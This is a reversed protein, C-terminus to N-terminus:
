VRELERQPEVRTAGKALRSPWWVRDGILHVAAPVVLTRVVFTDLLVGFGVLFGLQILIVLPLVTLAGFTAALVLGASTIVGGTVALARLVGSKTGHRSSEERARTMLFINYDIGLAVLFVFGILLVQPDSGPFDFLHDFVLSSVGVTSLVSLAVTAVLLIPAVVARLLLALVLTIVLLVLPVIVALDRAATDQTDLDSASSGGVLADPDVESVATRLEAV